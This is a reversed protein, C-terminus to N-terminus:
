YGIGRNTGLCIYNYQLEALSGSNVPSWNSSDLRYSKLPKGYEDYISSSDILYQKQSCDMKWWSLSFKYKPTLGNYSFNNTDIITKRDQYRSINKQGDSLQISSENIEDSITNNQTTGLYRWNDGSGGPIIRPPVKPVPSKRSSYRSKSSANTNTACGTMLVSILSLLLCQQWFKIQM